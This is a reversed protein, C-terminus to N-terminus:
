RNMGCGVVERAIVKNPVPLMSILEKSVNVAAGRDRSDSKARPLEDGRREREKRVQGWEIEM